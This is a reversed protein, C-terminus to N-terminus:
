RFSAPWFLPPFCFHGRSCDGAMDGDQEILHDVRRHVAVHFPEVCRKGAGAGRVCIGNRDQIRQRAVQCLKM